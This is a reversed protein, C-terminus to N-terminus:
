FVNKHVYTPRDVYPRDHMTTTVHLDNASNSSPSRQIHDQRVYKTITYAVAEPTNTQANQLEIMHDNPEKFKLGNPRKITEENLRKKTQNNLRQENQSSTM